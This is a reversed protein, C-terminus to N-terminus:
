RKSYDKRTTKKPRFLFQQINSKGNIFEEYENEKNGEVPIEKETYKIKGTKPRVKKQNPAKTVHKKVAQSIL